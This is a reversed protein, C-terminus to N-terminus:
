PFTKGFEPRFNRVKKPLLKERKDPVRTAASSHGSESQNPRSLERFCGNPPCSRNPSLFRVNSTQKAGLLPRLHAHRQLDAESGVRVNPEIPHSRCSDAM